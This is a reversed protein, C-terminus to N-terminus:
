EQEDQTEKKYPADTKMCAKCRNNVTHHPYHGDAFDGVKLPKNCSACQIGVMRVEGEYAELWDADIETWAMSLSM